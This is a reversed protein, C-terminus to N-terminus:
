KCWQRRSQLFNITCAFYNIDGTFALTLAVTTIVFMQLRLKILFRLLKLKFNIKKGEGGDRTISFQFSHFLANAFCCSSCSSSASLSHFKEVMRTVNSFLFMIMSGNSM